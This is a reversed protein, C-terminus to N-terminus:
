RQVINQRQEPRTSGNILAIIPPRSWASAWSMDSTLARYVYAATDHYYSFMLVKQDRLDTGLLQQVQALKADRQLTEATHQVIEVMELMRELTQIDADVARRIAKLDYELIDIESLGSIIADLETTTETEIANTDDQAELA